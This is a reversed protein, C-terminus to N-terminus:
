AVENMLVEIEVHFTGIPLSVGIATPTFYSFVNLQNELGKELSDASALYELLAEKDEYSNMFADYLEPEPVGRAAKYVAQMFKDDITVRDALRVKEATKADINFTYFFNNPHATGQIYGLGSFVISILDDTKRKIEYDIELTLREEPDFFELDYENLALHAEEKIAQNVRDSYEALVPYNITIDDSREARNTQPAEDLESQQATTTTVNSTQLEASTSSEQPPEKKTGECGWMALIYIACLSLVFLKKM